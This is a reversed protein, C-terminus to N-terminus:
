RAVVLRVPIQLFASYRRAETDLARRVRDSLPAWPVVQVEVHRPGRVQTWSGEVRGNVILQHAFTNPTMTVPAQGVHPLRAAKLPAALETRTLHRGGELARAIVTVSRALTKPTLGDRRYSFGNAVHVRPGSVALMWRIDRPHVFHWTPRLIHTRLIRGDNFTQEIAADTGASMRQGLGWRAPGFEQAQVAGMWAVVDEARELTSGALRQHRLRAAIPATM